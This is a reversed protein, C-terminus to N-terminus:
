EFEHLSATHLPTERLHQRERRARGTFRKERSVDIHREHHRRPFRGHHLLQEGVLADLQRPERMRVGKNREIGKQGFHHHGSSHGVNALIPWRGIHNQDRGLRAKRHAIIQM